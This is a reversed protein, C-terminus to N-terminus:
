PATRIPTSYNTPSSSLALRRWCHPTSARRFRADLFGMKRSYIVDLAIGIHGGGRWSAVSVGVNARTQSSVLPRLGAAPGFGFEFPDGSTAIHNLHLEACRYILRQMAAPEFDRLLLADREIAAFFDADRILAV